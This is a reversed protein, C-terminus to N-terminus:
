EGNEAEDELRKKHKPKRAPRDPREVVKEHFLPSGLSRAVPNRKLTRPAAKRPKRVM